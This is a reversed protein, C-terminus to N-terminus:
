LINNYIYYSNIIIKGLQLISRYVTNNNTSSDKIEILAFNHINEKSFNNFLYINDNKSIQNNTM